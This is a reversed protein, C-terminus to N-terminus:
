KITEGIDSYRMAKVMKVFTLKKSAYGTALEESEKFFDAHRLAVDGLMYEDGKDIRCEFIYVYVRPESYYSVNISIDQADRMADELKAYSHICGENIIFGNGGVDIDVCSPEAPRFPEKGEIISLPVHKRQFPTYFNCGSYDDDAKKGGNEDINDRVAAMLKYCILDDEAKKQSARILCM